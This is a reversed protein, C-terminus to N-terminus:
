FIGWRGVCVVCVRSSFTALWPGLIHHQTKTLAAEKRPVTKCLEAQQMDEELPIWCHEGLVEDFADEVEVAILSM